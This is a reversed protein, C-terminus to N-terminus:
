PGLGGVRQLLNKKIGAPASSNWPTDTCKKAFFHGLLILAVQFIVALTSGVRFSLLCSAIDCHRLTAIDYIIRKEGVYASKGCLCFESKWATEYDRPGQINTCVYDM